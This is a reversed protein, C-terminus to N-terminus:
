QLTKKKTAAVLIGLFGTSMEAFKMFFMGFAHIPNSALLKWNRIYAPRLVFLFVDGPTKIHREIYPLSKTAYYYKKKLDEILKLEGEDHIIFNRIRDIKYGYERVRATIDWDEGSIFNASLMGVKYFLSKSIFRIGEIREDGLYCLKELAKCKAWFGKGTSKEPIILAKIEQNKEVTNVCEEIVSKELRMDADMWIIYKGLSKSVGFNRQASREPGKLFVKKIFQKAIQRTNDKSYNDVVIIEIKPYTQIKISKLCAALTEAANKTSIVVSVFPNKSMEILIIASKYCHKM